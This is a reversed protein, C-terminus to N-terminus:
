MIRLELASDVDTKSFDNGAFLLPVSKEKALAYAFCDGFNLSAPHRGKGWDAYAKQVARAGAGDLMVIEIEMESILKNVRHLLGRASSVILLESYTGASMCLENGSLCAKIAPSLDEELLFAMIASTDVVIM